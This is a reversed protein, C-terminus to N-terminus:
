WLLQDVECNRDDYRIKRRNAIVQYGNRQALGIELGAVKRPLKVHGDGLHPACAHQLPVTLEWM